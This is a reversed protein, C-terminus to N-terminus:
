FLGIMKFLGLIVSLVGFVKLAGEVMHVHRNIHKIQAENLETRKIHIVLQEHQKALTIDINDIRSDIIEVKDLVRELLKNSDM